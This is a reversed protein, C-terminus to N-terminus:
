AASGDRMLIFEQDRTEGVAFEYEGAQKFGYHGYLKQAKFNESWVGIWVPGPFHAAIWALSQELLARGLGTGQASQRIYIRKLEGDRASVDAHPLGCPGSQAYGIAEGAQEAILWYQRPNAIERRVTKLEYSAQLFANLDAASYLHGFTETFTDIALQSLAPADDPRALRIAYSM